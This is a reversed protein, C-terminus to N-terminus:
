KYLYEILRRGVRTGRPICCAEHGTLGLAIRDQATAKNVVLSGNNGLNNLLLQANEVAEPRQDTVVLTRDVVDRAAKWLPHAAHVDLVLLVHDQALAKLAEVTSDPTGLLLRATKRRIPVITVGEHREPEGLGEAVSYLTENGNLGLRARLAGNGWTLEALAVTAEHHQAARRALGYALTTCGVGGSLSAFAVRLPSLRMVDRSGEARELHADPNQLFKRPTLVRVSAEELATMLGEKSIDAEVLDELDVIALSAESSADYVGSTTFAEEVKVRDYEKLASLVKAKTTAVIVVLERRRRFNFLGM